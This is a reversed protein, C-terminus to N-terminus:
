VLEPVWEYEVQNLEGDFETSPTRIAFIIAISQWQVFGCAATCQDASKVGANNRAAGKRRIFPKRNESLLSPTILVKALFAVTGM